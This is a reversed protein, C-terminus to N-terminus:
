IYLAIEFTLIILQGNFKRTDIEFSKTCTYFVFERRSDTGDPTTDKTYKYYVEIKDNYLVVKRILADIMPRPNKRIATSLYETIDAKTLTLKTKSREIQIKESLESKKDELQELREKTSSTVVGQEMASLINNIAKEINAFESLLLNLVSKDDNVKKNESLIRDALFDM